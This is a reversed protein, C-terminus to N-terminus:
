NNPNIDNPRWRPPTRRGAYGRVATRQGAYGRVGRGYMGRGCPGRGGRMVQGGYGAGGMRGGGRGLRGMPRGDWTDVATGQMLWYFQRLQTPTLTEAVQDYTAAIDAWIEDGEQWHEEQHDFVLSLRELLPALERATEETLALEQAVVGIDLSMASDTQATAFSVSGLSLLGGAVVCVTTHKLNNM